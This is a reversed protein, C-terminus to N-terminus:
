KLLYVLALGALALPVVPISQEVPAAINQPNIPSKTMNNGVAFGAAAAEITETLWDGFNNLDDSVDPVHPAMHAPDHVWIWKCSRPANEDPNEKWYGHTIKHM